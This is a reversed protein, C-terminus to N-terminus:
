TGGARFPLSRLRMRDRLVTVVAGDELDAAVRPLNAELLDAQQSPTLDNLHRLLVFSPKALDHRALLASFDSDSSIVVCNNHAGM